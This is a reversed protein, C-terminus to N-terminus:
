IEIVATVEDGAEITERRRVEGKLPLLLNGSKREPFLSTQWRTGGITVTVRISGFNGTQRMRAYRLEAAIQGEVTLFYWHAASPEAHRWQWVRATVEFRHASDM